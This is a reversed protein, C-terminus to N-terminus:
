NDDEESEEDMRVLINAHALIGDIISRACRGDCEDQDIAYVLADWAQDFGYWHHSHEGMWEVTKRLEPVAAILKLCRNFDSADLPTGFCSGERHYHAEVIAKSSSGVHGNLFWEIIRKDMSPRRPKKTAKSKAM